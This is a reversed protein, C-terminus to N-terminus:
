PGKQGKEGESFTKPTGCYRRLEDTVEIEEVDKVSLTGEFRPGGFRVEENPLVLKNQTTFVERICSITGQASNYIIGM